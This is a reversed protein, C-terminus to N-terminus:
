DLDEATPDLPQGLAEAVPGGVAEKTLYFEARHPEAGNDVTVVPVLTAGGPVDGFLGSLDPHAAVFDDTDAVNVWTRVRRPFSRHELRDYIVNRIGLPSGLTVLLALDRDLEHLAEFAVVSGLSHGIVVRTDDEILAHVADRATRRTDPDTLYREVQVVSRNVVKAATVGLRSFWRIGALRDITAGAVRGPGQAADPDAAAAALAGAARQRELPNSARDRVNCLWARALEDALDPDAIQAQGDGQAGPVLFCHGYFAMRCSLGDRARRDHWLRRAIDPQGAHTVGGALHQAWAEELPVAASQEQAIGHVFVVHAM